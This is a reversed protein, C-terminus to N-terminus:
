IVSALPNIKSSCSEFVSFREKSPPALAQPLLNKNPTLLIKQLIAIPDLNNLKVTQLISMLVNHNEAGKDSRNGFTIKRFIVDPRIQQEIHNNHYDIDREYLFTFLEKKHRNLRKAFRKLIKKNPNPFSFDRLEESLLKRKRYFREDPTKDTYEKHLKVADEFIGKLHRCYGLVQRDDYWYEIVKKLDRLIHVLCRQKSKSKIKNYASLFDSIIVGGYEKGIINEVVKAGRSKDIHSVCVKKNSFKWLWHNKGDVKWGTEDVHIFSGSKLSKILAQYLPLGAKKLQERFDAISSTVLKLNFAKEFLTKVDRESIKIGYRLFAAFAKAKPGIYSNSLEDKGKASVVKRCRKCYYHHRRYLVAEVKPLTIDEQIHESIKNCESIEESGCEPCRTLRVEEIHDIKKPKKRFWGIHGFLGGKKKPVCSSGDSKELPPKKSSKYRKSRLEELEFKLYAIEEKLKKNEKRLEVIIDWLKRKGAM